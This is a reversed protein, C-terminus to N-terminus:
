LAACHWIGSCCNWLSGTYCLSNSYSFFYNLTVSLQTSSYDMVNRYVLCLHNHTRQHVPLDQLLYHAPVRLATTKPENPMFIYINQERIVPFEGGRTNRNRYLKQLFSNLGLRKRGNKESHNIRADQRSRWYVKIIYLSWRIFGHTVSGQILVLSLIHLFLDRFHDTLLAERMSVLSRFTHLIWVTQEPCQLDTLVKFQAKFCTLSSTCYVSVKGGVETSPCINASQAPFELCSQQTFYM